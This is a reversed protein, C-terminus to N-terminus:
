EPKRGDDHCTECSPKDSFAMEHPAHCDSCMLMEEHIAHHAGDIEDAGGHCDQCQQNELVFDDTPAGGDAHCSECGDNMEAHVDALTESEDAAIVAFTLLTAAALTPLLLKM